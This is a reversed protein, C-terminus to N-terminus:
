QALSVPSLKPLKHDNKNSMSDIRTAVSNKFLFILSKLSTTHVDQKSASKHLVIYTLNIDPSENYRLCSRPRIKKEINSRIIFTQIKSHDHLILICFKTIHICIAENNMCFYIIDLYQLLHQFLIQCNLNEILCVM